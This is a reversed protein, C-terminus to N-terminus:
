SQSIMSKLGDSETEYGVSKLLSFRVIQDFVALRRLPPCFIHPDLVFGLVCAGLLSKTSEKM